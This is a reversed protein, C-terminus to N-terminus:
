RPTPETRGAHPPHVWEESRAAYRREAVLHQDVARAIAQKRGTSAPTFARLAACQRCKPRCGRGAPHSPLSRVVSRPAPRGTWVAGGLGRVADATAGLRVASAPPMLWCSCPTRTAPISELMVAGRRDTLSRRGSRHGCLGSWRDRGRGSSDLARALALREHRWHGVAVEFAATAEGGGLAWSDARADEGQGALAVALDALGAGLAAVQDADVRFTTMSRRYASGHRRRSTKWLPGLGALLATETGVPGAWVWWYHPKPARPPSGTLLRDHGGAEAPAQAVAEAAAAFGTALDALIDDITESGSRWACSGQRSARPWGTEDGGQSHTTTAPHIAPSRVDGINAVHSHLELGEVFARGADVGGKIEFALM